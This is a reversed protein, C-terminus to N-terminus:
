NSNKTALKNFEGMSTILLDRPKNGNMPGIIDLQELWFELNTVWGHGKDLKAQLISSSFKGNELCIEVAKRVIPDSSDFTRGHYEEHRIQELFDNNELYAITERNYDEIYQELKAQRIKLYETINEISDKSREQMSLEEIEYYRVEKKFAM